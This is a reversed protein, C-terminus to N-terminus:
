TSKNTLASILQPAFPNVAAVLLAAFAVLMTLVDNTAARAEMTDMRATDESRQKDIRATDESRQKDM